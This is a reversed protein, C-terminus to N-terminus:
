PCFTCKLMMLCHSVTWSSPLHPMQRLKQWRCLSHSSSAWPVIQWTMLNILCQSVYPPPATLKSMCTTEMMGVTMTLDPVGQELSRCLLLNRSSDLSRGPFPPISIQSELVHLTSLQKRSSVAQVSSLHWHPRLQTSSQQHRLGSDERSTNPLHHIHAASCPNSAPWKEKVMPQEERRSTSSWQSSEWSKSRADQTTTDLSGQATAQQKCRSSSPDRGPPELFKAQSM